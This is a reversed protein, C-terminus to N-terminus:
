VYIEFEKGSYIIILYQIYNRISYLLVKNNIQEIYVLKFRSIRFEWDNEGRKRPLWLDIREIQADIETKYIAFQLLTFLM